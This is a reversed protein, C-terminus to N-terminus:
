THHTSPAPSHPDGGARLKADLEVRAGPRLQKNLEEISIQAHTDSVDKMNRPTENMEHQDRVFSMRAAYKDRRDLTTLTGRMSSCM